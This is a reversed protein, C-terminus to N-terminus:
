IRLGTIFVSSRRRGGRREFSKDERVGLVTETWSTGGRGDRREKTVWMAVPELPRLGGLLVMFLGSTIWKSVLREDVQKKLDKM